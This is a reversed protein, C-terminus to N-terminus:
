WTNRRGDPTHPYSTRQVGRAMGGRWYSTRTTQRYSRHGTDPVTSPCGTCRLDQTNSLHALPYCKLIGHVMQAWGDTHQGGPGATGGRIRYGTRWDPTHIGNGIQVTSLHVPYPYRCGGHWLGTHRRVVSYRYWSRGGNSGWRGDMELGWFSRMKPTHILTCM